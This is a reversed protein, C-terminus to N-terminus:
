SGSKPGLTPLSEMVDTRIHEPIDEPTTGEPELQVSVPNEGKEIRLRVVKLKYGPSWLKLTVKKGPVFPLGFGGGERRGLGAFRTENADLAGPLTDFDSDQGDPGITTPLYLGAGGATVEFTVWAAPGDEGPNGSDAPPNKPCGALLFLLAMSTLLAIPQAKRLAAVAPATM